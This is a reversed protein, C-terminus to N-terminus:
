RGPYASEPTPGPTAVQSPYGSDARPSTPEPGPYDKGGPTVTLTPTATPGEVAPTEDARIVTPPPPTADGDGGCSALLLALVAMALTALLLGARMVLPSRGKPTMPM